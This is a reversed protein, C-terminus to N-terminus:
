DPITMTGDSVLVTGGGVRVGSVRAGYVDAEVRIASPRGMEVGQEVLWRYTGAGLDESVALYGALAAAAAGTAPDEAIGMAPAFVRARLDAQEGGTDRTFAYIQPAWYSELHTHWRAKDLVVRALTQRDKVPVFLFPVGCSVARPVCSGGVLDDERLSLVEALVGSPPPPPGYEPLQPASLEAFLRGDEGRTVLVPVPGAGEEFIWRAQAGEHAVFGLEALLCAAGITPHGAFPLETRPTFIRLRLTSGPHEPPLVFATESLNLEAAIQQMRAGPIAGAEPFVALPNGGFIRDTFVDTLLYRAHM